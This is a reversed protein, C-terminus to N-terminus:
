SRAARIGVQSHESKLVDTVASAAKVGSMLAGDVGYFNMWDGAFVVHRRQERQEIYYNKVAESRGVQHVPVGHEFSTTVAAAYGSAQAAAISGMIGAGFMHLLDSRVAEVVVQASPKDGYQAFIQAAQDANLYVTFSQGPLDAETSRYNLQAITANPVAEGTSGEGAPLVVGSLASVDQTGSLESLKRDAFLTVGLAAKFPTLVAREAATEAEYIKEVVPSPVALVAWDYVESAGAVTATVTQGNSQVNSVFVGTRVTGGNRTVEEAMKEALTGMGDKFTFLGQKAEEFFLTVWHLLAKSSQDLEQFAMARMTPANLLRELATGSFVSTFAKGTEHDMNEWTTVDAPDANRMQWKAAVGGATARTLAGPVEHWKLLGSTILTQAKTLDLVNIKGDRVIGSLSSRIRMVDGQLGLEETVRKLELYMKEGGPFYNAGTDVILTRGDPLDLSMTRTRGGVQEDKEVVTVAFGQKQLERAARLGAVGAGVVLASQGAGVGVGRTAVTAAHTAAHAAPRSSHFTTSDANAVRMLSSASAECTSTLSTFFPRHTVLM